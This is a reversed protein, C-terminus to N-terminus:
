LYKKCKLLHVLQFMYDNNYDASFAIERFTPDQYVSNNNKPDGHRNWDDQKM